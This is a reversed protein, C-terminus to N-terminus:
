QSKDPLDGSSTANSEVRLRPPASFARLLGFSSQVASVCLRRSLCFSKGSCGRISTHWPPMPASPASPLSANSKVSLRPPASFARLFVLAQNWRRSASVGLRRSFCFLNGSCGRVGACLSRLSRLLFPKSSFRQQSSLNRANTCVSAPGSSGSMNRSSM